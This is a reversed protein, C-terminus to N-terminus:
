SKLAFNQHAYNSLVATKSRYMLSLDEAFTRSQQRRPIDKPRCCVTHQHLNLCFTMSLGLSWWLMFPYGVIKAIHIVNSLFIFSVM